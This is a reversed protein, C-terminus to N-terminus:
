FGIVANAAVGCYSFGHGFGLSYQGDSMAKNADYFYKYEMKGKRIKVEHLRLAGYGSLGMSDNCGARFGQSYSSGDEPINRLFLPRPTMANWTGDSNVCGTLVFFLASIFLYVKM